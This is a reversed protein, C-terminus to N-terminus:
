DSFACGWKPACFRIRLCSELRFGMTDLSLLFLQGETGKWWGLVVVAFAKEIETLIGAAPM